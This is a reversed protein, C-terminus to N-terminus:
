AGHCYGRDVACSEMSIDHLPFSGQSSFARSVTDPSELLVFLGLSVCYENLEAVSVPTNVAPPKRISLTLLFFHM